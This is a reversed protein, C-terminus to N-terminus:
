PDSAPHRKRGGAAAIQNAIWEATPHAAVGIRMGYGSMVHIQAQVGAAECVHLRRLLDTSSM